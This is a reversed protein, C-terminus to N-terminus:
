EPHSEMRDLHRAIVLRQIESTGEGIECLKADRLIREVPYDRSYGYGGLVQVASHGARVAVESGFLKAFSGQLGYPLGHDERWAAEYVLNRAAQIEMAMDALRDSVAGLDILREGFARRERAYPLAADLAAQALGVAM